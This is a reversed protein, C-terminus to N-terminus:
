IIGRLLLALFLNNKGDALLTMVNQVEYVYYGVVDHTVIVDHIFIFVNSYVFLIYYFLKILLNFLKIFM